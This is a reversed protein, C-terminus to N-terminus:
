WVGLLCDIMGLVGVFWLIICIYVDVKYYIEFVVWDICIEVCMLCNCLM